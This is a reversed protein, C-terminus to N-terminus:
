EVLRALIDPAANVGIKWGPLRLFDVALRDAVGVGPRNSDDLIRSHAAPSKAAPKTIVHRAHEAASTSRASPFLCSRFAAVGVDVAFVPPDGRRAIRAVCHAHSHGLQSLLAYSRFMQPGGRGFQDPLCHRFA